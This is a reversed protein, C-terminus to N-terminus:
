LQTPPTTPTIQQVNGLLEFMEPILCTTPRDASRTGRRRWVDIYGLRPTFITMAADRQINQTKKRNVIILYM